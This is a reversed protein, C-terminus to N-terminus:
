ATVKGILKGLAEVALEEDAGDSMIHLLMGERVDLSLMGMFSKGNVYKKHDIEILVNSKFECAKQVFQASVAPFDIAHNSVCITRSTM